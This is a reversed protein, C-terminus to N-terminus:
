LARRTAAANPSVNLTIDVIRYVDTGVLVIACIATDTTSLPTVKFPRRESYGSCPITLKFTAHWMRTKEDHGISKITLQDAGQEEEVIDLAVGSSTVIWRTQLGGQSVGGTAPVLLRGLETTGFIGTYPINLTLPLDPESERERIWFRVDQQDVGDVSQPDRDEINERSMTNYGVKM